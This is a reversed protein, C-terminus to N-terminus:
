APAENRRQGSLLRGALVQLEAMEFPKRLLFTGEDPETALDLDSKATIVIVPTLVGSRRIGRLFDLGSIHPLDIDIVLLQINASYQQFRVTLARGDEAELVEYGLLELSSRIASRVHWNDEALLILEGEGNQVIARSEGPKPVAAEELTPLVVEFTSGKGPESKVAMYGGHDKVIGHVIALGLGTGQEKPKTTFFPEFIHDQMDLSIGGGTDTVTLHVASRSEAFIASSGTANSSCAAERGGTPRHSVSIRLTGGDPMADRANIALNMVTQQLQTPDAQVWTAGRGLDLVVEVGAPLLRRLMRASRDVLGRLEVPEKKAATECCFTLLSRTVGVAQETAEEVGELLRIVKHDGPLATRAQVTYGSIATLLNSFDHAVGAALQGVAEMKQSQYLQAQLMDREEEGRIREITRGLREVIANLLSREEELFPGEDIPRREEQYYVEVSGRREEHLLIDGTQKWCSEEFGPSVCVQGELTARACTIEPYQWSLPILEAVRQLIEGLTINPTEVIKAIGYLCGLEKVREGLDHTRKQLIEEAQRRGADARRLKQVEGRLDSLEHLLGAETKKSAPM